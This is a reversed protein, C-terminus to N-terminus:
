GIQNRDNTLVNLKHSMSKSKNIIKKTNLEAYKELRYKNNFEQQSMKCYKIAETQM